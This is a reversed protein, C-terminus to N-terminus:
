CGLVVNSVRKREWGNSVMHVVGVVLAPDSESRSLASAESGLDPSEPSDTHLGAWCNESRFEPM